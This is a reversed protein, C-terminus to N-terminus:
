DFAIGIRFALRNYKKTVWVRDQYWTDTHVITNDQYRYLLGVSLLNHQNLRFHVGLGAECLYGGKGDYKYWSDDRPDELMFSYGGKLILVPAINQNSLVYRAEAFLPLQAQEFFELGLGLGAIFRNRFKYGNTMLVSFVTNKENNGSGFLLGTETINAYGSARATVPKGMRYSGSSPLNFNVSEVEDKNFVWLSRCPTEIGVKSSDNLEVFSGRIISGNKLTVADSLRVRQAMASHPTFSILLAIVSILLIIFLPQKQRNM